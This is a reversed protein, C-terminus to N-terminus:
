LKNNQLSYKNEISEHKVWGCVSGDELVITPFPSNVPLKCYLVNNAYFSNEILEYSCVVNMDQNINDLSKDVSILKYNEINYNFDVSEGSKVFEEYLFNEDDLSDKYFRVSYYEQKNSYIPYIDLSKTINNYDNSWGIFAKGFVEDLIPPIANNGKEVVQREVLENYYNYFNVEFHNQKYVAYIDLDETIETFDKDWHSFTFDAYSKMIPPTAHLGDKVYEEKIIIDNHYFRVRHMLSNNYKAYLNLAEQGVYPETLSEDVYWGAFYLNEKIPVDIEYVNKAKVFTQNDDINICYYKEYSDGYLIILIEKKINGIKITILHEGAKNLAKLDKNSIMSKDVVVQEVFDEYVVELWIKDLRFEDVNQIQNQVPSSVDFGIVKGKNNCSCLLLIFFILFYLYRKM